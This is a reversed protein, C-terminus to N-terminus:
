RILEVLLNKMPIWLHGEVSISNDHLFRAGCVPVDVYEYLMVSGKYTAERVLRLIFPMAKNKWNIRIHNDALKGLSPKVWRRSLTPTKLSSLKANHSNNHLKGNKVTSM